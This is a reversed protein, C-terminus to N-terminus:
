GPREQANQRPADGAADKLEVEEVVTRRLVVDGHDEEEVIRSIESRMRADPNTKVGRVIYGFFEGV